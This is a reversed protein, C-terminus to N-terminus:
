PFLLSNIWHLPDYCPLIHLNRSETKVLGKVLSVTIKSSRLCGKTHCQKNNNNNIQIKKDKKQLKEEPNRMNEYHMAGRKAWVLRERGKYVVEQVWKYVHVAKSTHVIPYMYPMVPHLQYRPILLLLNSKTGCNSEKIQLSGSTLIPKETFFHFNSM